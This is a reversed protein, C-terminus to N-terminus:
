KILSLFYIYCFFRCFLLAHFNPFFYGFFTVSREVNQRSLIYIFIVLYIFISIYLVSQHTGKENM